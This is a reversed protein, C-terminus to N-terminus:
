ECTSKSMLIYVKFPDPIKSKVCCRGLTTSMFLVPIETFNLSKIINPIYCKNM